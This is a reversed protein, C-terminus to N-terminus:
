VSTPGLRAELGRLPNQGAQNEPPEVEPNSTLRWSALSLISRLIEIDYHLEVCTRVIDKRLVPFEGDRRRQCIMKQAKPFLYNDAGALIGVTDQRVGAHINDEDVVSRGDYNSGPGIRENSAERRARLNNACPQM